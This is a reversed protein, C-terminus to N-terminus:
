KEVKYPITFYFVSGKNMESEVWIKGGFLNVLGKSISLGLGTGSKNKSKSEEAQRFRDFIHKQSKESIGVGTDKVYFEIFQDKVQYGIEVSGKDTFKLANVILNILIQTLRTNDAIIVSKDDPLTTHYKISVKSDVEITFQNQLRKLLQNLNCKEKMIEIQGSDLKSIDIIDSIITLLQNGSSTVIDIYKDRENKSISDDEGIITTFGIIANLPTRIEHSMNNLFDTKLRDSQEAKLKAYILEDKLKKRDSIDRTVSLLHPKNDIKIINASVLGTIIVGDKRKFSAEYNNITGYRKLEDILKERENLNPWLLKKGDPNNIIENKDFGTIRTFSENVDIFVGELTSITVADPSTKFTLKYKEESEKLAIEAKKRLSIDRFFSTFTGNPMMKSNMEIILRNGDKKIIERENIITEGKVLLDYRLPVKNLTSNSFLNKMNMKLIEEETYGTLSYAKDNADIFNGKTDGHFYADPALDLINKFKSETVQLKENLAKNESIDRINTVRAKQGFYEIEQGTLEVDIKKGDKRIGIAKYTDDIKNKIHYIIEEQSEKAAFTLVDLGYIDEDDYQFLKKFAKNSDIVKGDNHILVAEITSDNLIESKAHNIKLQTIDIIRISIDTIRNKKNIRTYINIFGWWRKNAPTFLSIESNNIKKLSEKDYSNNFNVSQIKFIDHFHKNCVNKLPSNLLKSLNKSTKVIRGNSDILLEIDNSLPVLHDLQPSFFNLFRKITNKM